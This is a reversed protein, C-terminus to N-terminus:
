RRAEQHLRELAERAAVRVANRPDTALSALEDAAQQLGLSGLTRAAAQRIRWDPDRVAELLAAVAAESRCQAQVLLGFAQCRIVSNSDRLLPLLLGPINAHRCHPLAALAHGRVSASSDALGAEILPLSRPDDKGQVADLILCRLRTTRAEQYARGFIEFADPGAAIQAVLERQQVEGAQHLVEAPEGEVRQQTRQYAMNEEEEAPNFARGGAERESKREKAREHKRAL